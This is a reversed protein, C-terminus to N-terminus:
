FTSSTVHVASKIALYHPGDRATILVSQGQNLTDDDRLPEVLIYHAQDHEDRLKVQVPQGRTGTGAM